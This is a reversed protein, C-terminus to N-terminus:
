FLSFFAVVALQAFFEFEKSERVFYTLTQWQPQGFSSGQALAQLSEKSFCLFFRAVFLYNGGMYPM